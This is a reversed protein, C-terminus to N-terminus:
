QIALANQFASDDLDMSMEGDDDPVEPENKRVPTKKAKKKVIPPTRPDNQNMVEEFNEFGDSQRQVERITVGTRKGVAMQDGRYPVYAKGTRRGGHSSRRPTTPM